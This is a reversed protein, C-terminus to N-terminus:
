KMRVVVRDSNGDDDLFIVSANSKRKQIEALVRDAQELKGKFPPNGLHISIGERGVVLESTGDIELHVEQIPYRKVINTKNAEDIIDLARRVLLTLGDRDKLATEAKIGTVVPLDYVDEPALEKFVEGEQTALYLKDELAVLVAPQREVIKISITNPLKRTVTAEAVYPEKEILKKAQDLDVSFVNQGVAVNGAKAISEPTLKGAGEVTITKVNFRPSKTIYAKAGWAAGVSAAIVLVIAVLIRTGTWASSLAKRIRGPAKPTKPGAPPPPVSRVVSPPQPSESARPPPTADRKPEPRAREEPRPELRRNSPLPAPGRGTSAPGKSFPGKM